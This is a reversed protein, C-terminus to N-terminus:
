QHLITIDVYYNVFIFDIYKTNINVVRVITSPEQLIPVKVSKDFNGSGFRLLKTFEPLELYAPTSRFLM